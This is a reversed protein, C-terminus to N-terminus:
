MHGSLCMFSFFPVVFVSGVKPQFGCWEGCTLSRLVCNLFRLLVVQETPNLPLQPFPKPIRSRELAREKQISPITLLSRVLWFLCHRNNRQSKSVQSKTILFNGPGSCECFIFWRPVQSHLCVWEDPLFIDVM